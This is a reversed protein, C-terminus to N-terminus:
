LKTFHFGDDSVALGLRSTGAFKGITDEARFILYVKNDRVVAAPNFVDKRDWKVGTNLIPCVFSNEGPLLVPNVSDVKYFPLLAWSTDRATSTPASTKQPGCRILLLITLLVLIVDLFNKERKMRTYESSFNLTYM